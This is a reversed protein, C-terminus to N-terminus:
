HPECTLLIRSTFALCKVMGPHADCLSGKSSVPLMCPTKPAAQVMLSETLVQKVAMGTITVEIMNSDDELLAFHTKLGVIAVPAVKWMSVKYVLNRIMENVITSLSANRPQCVVRRMATVLCVNQAQEAHYWMIYWM